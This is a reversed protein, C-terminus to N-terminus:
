RARCYEPEWCLVNRGKAYLVIVKKPQSDWVMGSFDRMGLTGPGVVGDCDGVVTQATGM